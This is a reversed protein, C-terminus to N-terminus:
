WSDHSFKLLIFLIMLNIIQLLIKPLFRSFCMILYNLFVWNALRKLSNLSLYFLLLQHYENVWEMAYMEITNFLNVRILYKFRVSTVFSRHQEFRPIYIKYLGKRKNFKFDQLSHRLVIDLDLMWSWCYEECFNPGCFVYLPTYKEFNGGGRLIM